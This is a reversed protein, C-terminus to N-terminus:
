GYVERLWENIRTFLDDTDYMSSDAQRKFRELKVQTLITDVSVNARDELAIHNQRIIELASDDTYIKPLFYDLYEDYSDFGFGLHSNPDPDHQVIRSENDTERGRGTDKTQEDGYDIPPLSKLALSRLHGAIHDGLSGNSDQEEAGCLPCSKFVPGTLQLSREALVAIQEDTVVRRHKEKMHSIYDDRTNFFMNKHSKSACRWRMSHKRMHRLWEDSHRYLENPCDCDEALCVYPELDNKVHDRREENTSATCTQIYLPEFRWKKENEVEQIPLILLCYPCIVEAATSIHAPAPPFYLDEHRGLAITNSQSVVSPTAAKQFSQPILTTASIVISTAGSPALPELSTIM